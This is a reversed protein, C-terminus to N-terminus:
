PAPIPQGGAVSAAKLVAEAARKADGRLQDLDHALEQAMAEAQRAHEEADLAATRAEGALTFAGAACLLALLTCAGTAYEYPRLKPATM